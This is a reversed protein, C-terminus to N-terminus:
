RPVRAPVVEEVTGLIVEVRRGDPGRVRRRIEARVVNKERWPKLDHRKLIKHVNDRSVKPAIGRREAEEALLTLTWRAFGVPPASCALSAIKAAQGDDLRPKLRNSKPKDELAGAIGGAVYGDRVRRIVRPFTGLGVAVQQVTRGKHLLLLARIRLWKRSSLRGAELSRLEKLSERGLAFPKTKAM